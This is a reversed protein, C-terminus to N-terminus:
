GVKRAYEELSFVRAGSVVARRGKPWLSFDRGYKRKRFQCSMCLVQLDERKPQKLLQIYFPDGMGKFGSIRRDKVGDDNIHDLSLVAIDDDQCFTCSGNGYLNMVAVKRDHRSQRNKAKEKARYKASRKQYARCCARRKNVDYM